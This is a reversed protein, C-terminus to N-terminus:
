SPERMESPCVRNDTNDNHDLLEIIADRARRLPVMRVTEGAKAPERLNSVASIVSQNDTEFSTSSKGEFRFIPRYGLLREQRRSRSSRPTQSTLFIGYAPRRPYRASTLRFRNSVRVFVLAKAAETRIRYFYNSVLVTRALESAVVPYSSYATL